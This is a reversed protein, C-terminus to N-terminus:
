EFNNGFNLSGCFFNIVFNAGKNIKMLIPNDSQESISTITKEEWISKLVQNEYQWSGYTECSLFWLKQLSWSQVVYETGWPSGFTM